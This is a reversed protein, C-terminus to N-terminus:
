PLQKTLTPKSFSWATMRLCCILYVRLTEAFKLNKFSTTKYRRTSSRQCVKLLSSSSIPSLPDGQRLGRTPAFTVTLQGNVQVSFVVSSVCAMVWSVWVKDFGLKLLLMELFDWDVRDYAKALDMKYACFSEDAKNSKHIAHFCEFAILANDSILRGPLFASQNESILNHLHPRLRNVMCKSIIKYIVNCLSIPRYEALDSADASKPILVIKTLNFDDPLKGDKFFNKIAACVENKLLGWNRQFFRAPLGDPGPAKLPGIQFLADGIEKESLDALLSNNTKESVMPQILHIIQMPDVTTDKQYLRQFFSNAIDRLENEDTTVSGDHRRLKRIRNKKARGNAKRHFFKTNQDGEKLWQGQFFFGPTSIILPM